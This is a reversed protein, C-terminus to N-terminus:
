FLVDQESLQNSVLCIRFAASLFPPFSASIVMEDSIGGARVTAPTVVASVTM